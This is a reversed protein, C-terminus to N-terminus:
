DIFDIKISPNVIKKIIRDLLGSGDLKIVKENLWKIHDEKYSDNNLHVEIVRKLRTRLRNVKHQAYIIDKYSADQKSMFKTYYLILVMYYEILDRRQNMSYTKLKIKRLNSSEVRKM